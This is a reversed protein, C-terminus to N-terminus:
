CMHQQQQQQQAGDSKASYESKTDHVRITRDGAVSAFVTAHRPNWRAGYVSDTHETFTALSKGRLLPDWM